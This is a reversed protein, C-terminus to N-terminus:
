RRSKKPRIKGTPEARNIWLKSKDKPRVKKIPTSPVEPPAIPDMIDVSTSEQAQKFFRVFWNM